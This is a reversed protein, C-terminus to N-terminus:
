RSRHSTLFLRLPAEIADHSKDGDRLIIAGHKPDCGFELTMTRFGGNIVELNLSGAEYGADLDGRNLLAGLTFDLPFRKTRSEVLHEVGEIEVLSADLLTRGNLRLALRM